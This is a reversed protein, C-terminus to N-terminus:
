DPGSEPASCLPLVRDVLLELSPWALEPPLGGCLPHTVWIGSSRIREAAQEPTLIRYIGNAARLEEVSNVWQGTKRAAEEGMWRGYMRADHLLHPGMEAWARDPDESVFGATISGPEPNVFLGPPQGYERCAELYVSELERNIGGAIMGLGFRAARRAVVPTNGGMLLPPGNKNLPTPTVHCPRGEFDFPEGTWANRLAEIAAEMRRGRDPFSQGFMAYEESRYGVALVYSLRGGSVVDLVAMDEALRIPDHLPLVLAAIQIPMTRTRAAMASALLLPSPLYGDESGHHESIVLQVCGKQEGWEAMELACAYLEATSASGFSPARMDFRMLFM